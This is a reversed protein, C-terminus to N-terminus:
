LRVARQTGDGAREPSAGMPNVQEQEDYALALAGIVESEGHLSAVEIEVNGALLPRGAIADGMPNLLLEGTSALEGGVVIRSPALSTLQDALVAGIQAGADGVVQRCGIDGAKAERIVDSLSSYGRSLRLSEVLVDAGVVTNLCGRGGCTCILGTPEVQVHGIEGAIGRAGRYLAGNIIIGAGTSYSACVYIGNKVGRLGGRRGEAIAAANADNDVSVPRNLRDGLVAAIKVQEWGPLIGAVSIMGTDPDVPAAVCVGVATLEDVNAGLDEILEVILLAARDLTTDARHSLPLPLSKSRQINLSPDSIAIKLVRRGVQIGALLGTQRALSVLQARRGSHVTSQTRFVGEAVLRKVTNSITAPSLGTAATLEVQTIHGYTRVTEVVRATNAERLSAQSGPGTSM